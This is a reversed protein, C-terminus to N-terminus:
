IFFYEFWLYKFIDEIDISIIQFYVLMLQMNIKQESPVLHDRFIKKSRVVQFIDTNPAKQTRIKHKVVEIRPSNNSESIHDM